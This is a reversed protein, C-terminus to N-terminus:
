KELVLILTSLLILSLGAVKYGDLQEDFWQWGILMISVFCIGLLPYAFSLDYVTLVNLWLWFNVTAAAMAMWFYKQQILKKVAIPWNQLSSLEAAQVSLKFSVDCVVRAILAFVLVFEM